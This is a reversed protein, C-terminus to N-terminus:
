VIQQVQCVCSLDISEQALIKWLAHVEAMYGNLLDLVQEIMTRTFGQTISSRM